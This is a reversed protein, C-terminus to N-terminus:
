EDVFTAEPEMEMDIDCYQCQPTGANVLFYPSVIDKNGCIPCVFVLEIASVAFPMLIGEM